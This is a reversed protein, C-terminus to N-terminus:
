PGVVEDWPPLLLFLSFSVPMYPMASM